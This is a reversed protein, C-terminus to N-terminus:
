ALPRMKRGHRLGEDLFAQRREDKCLACKPDRRRIQTALEGKVRGKLPAGARAANQLAAIKEFLLVRSESVGTKELCIQLQTGDDRHGAASRSPTEGLFPSQYRRARVVALLM